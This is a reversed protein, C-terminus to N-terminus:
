GPAEFHVFGHSKAEAYRSRQQREGHATRRLRLLAAHREEEGAGSGALAAIEAAELAGVAMALLQRLAGAGAAARPPGIEAGLTAVGDVRAVADAASGPLVGLALHDRLIDIVEVARVVLDALLRREGLLALRDVAAGVRGVPVVHQGPRLRVAARERRAVVAGTAVPGLAGLAGGHHSMMVALPQTVVLRGLRPVRRMRRAARIAAAALGVQLAGTTVAQQVAERRVSARLTPLNAQQSASHHAVARSRIQGGNKGLDRRQM